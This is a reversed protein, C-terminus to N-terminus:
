FETMKLGITRLNMIHLLLYTLYPGTQHYYELMVLLRDFCRHLRWMYLFMTKTAKKHHKLTMLNTQMRIIM